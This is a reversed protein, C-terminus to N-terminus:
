AYRVFGAKRIASVSPHNNPNVYIIGGIRSRLIRLLRTYYGQGRYKPVTEFDFLIPLSPIDHEGVYTRDECTVWGSSFVRQFDTLAVFYVSPDKFYREYQWRYVPFAHQRAFAYFEQWSRIEVYGCCAEQSGVESVESKYYEYKEKKKFCIRNIIKRAMGRISRSFINRQIDDFQYEQMLM